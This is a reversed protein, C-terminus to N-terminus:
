DQQKAEDIAEQITKGSGVLLTIMRRAAEICMHVDALADHANEVQVGMDSCIDSLQLSSWQRGRIVTLWKALHMTDYWGATYATAPLFANNPHDREDCRFWKRLFRVDFELNHGGLEAIRYRKGAKSTKLLSRHGELFKVFDARASMADIAEKAWADPDYSNVDLAEEEYYGPYLKIKREFAELEKLEYDTAIAAIQIIQHRESDLGGTELDLWVIKGKADTKFTM